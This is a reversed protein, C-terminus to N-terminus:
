PQNRFREVPRLDERRRAAASLHWTERTKDWSVLQLILGRGVYTEATHNLWERDGVPVRHLGAVIRGLDERWIRGHTTYPGTMTAEFLLSALLFESLPLPKRELETGDHLFFVPPDDGHPDTLMVFCGQNEIGFRLRGAEDLRLQHAAIFEDQIGLLEERGAVADHLMALPRPMPASPLPQPGVASPVDAYWSTVFEHLASVPDHPLHRLWTVGPREPAPPSPDAPRVCDLYEFPLAPDLEFRLGLLQSPRTGISYSAGAERLAGLPLLGGPLRVFGEIRQPNRPGCTLVAHVDAPFPAHVEAHWADQIGTGDPRDGAEFLIMVLDPSLVYTVLPTRYVQPDSGAGALLDAESILNM